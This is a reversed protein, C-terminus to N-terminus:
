KSAEELDIIRKGAVYEKGAYHTIRALMESIKELRRASELMTVALECELGTQPLRKALQELGSILVTLPQNIEHSAGGALELIGTLKEKERLELELNKRLTIDRSLHILRNVQGGAEKLPYCSTEFYLTQGDQHRHVHEVHSAQGSALCEKLPCPCLSDVQNCPRDLHHTIEHCRKGLVEARTLGYSNLFAQNVELIRYTGADLVMLADSIGNLIAEKEELQQRLQDLDETKEKEEPQDIM